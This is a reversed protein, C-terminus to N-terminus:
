AFVRKLKFAVGEPGLRAFDDQDTLSEVVAVLHNDASVRFKTGPQFQEPHTELFSKCLAIGNAVAKTHDNKIRIEPLFRLVQEMTFIKKNLTGETKATRLDELTISNERNFEGIQDRTLKLLHAGCGLRDGMQQCLTRVYTGASCHVTFGVQDEQKDLFKLSYIHVRAPKRDVTVGNRALKYLPIGNKKKASFMPPVQLLDGQFSNFVVKIADEGIPSADGTCIVKGTADQTNTAVGLQMTGTYVKPLRTLFQIVKTAKNFCVPLIGEVMPDLTGIHGAKKVDLITRVAQVTSFSSPGPPKYINLIGDM